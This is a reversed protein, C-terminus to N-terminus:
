GVEDPRRLLKPSSEASSEKALHDSSQGALDPDAVTASIPIGPADNCSRVGVVINARVGLVQQRASNGSERNIGAM